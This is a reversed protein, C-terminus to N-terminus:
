QVRERIEIDIEVPDFRFIVFGRPVVPRVSLTYAGPADIDSADVALSIAEPDTQNILSQSAQVRISGGPVALDASFEDSLGLIILPVNEFTNVLISDSIEARFEVLRSGEFRLLPNPAVLAVRLVFDGDQAGLEIEETNLENVQSIVSRPGYIEVQDPIVSYSSLEYGPAPSGSIAPVVPVMASVRQELTLELLGPEIRIELPEISAALGLRREELAVRYEGERSFQRFDASIQIEDETISYIDDGQGRIYVRAFAPYEKAPVLNQPLELRIPLTIYREELNELGVLLYLLIAAGLALAKAPWNSFLRVIIQSLSRRSSM